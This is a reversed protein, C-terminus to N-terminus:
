YTINYRFFGLINSIKFSSNDINASYREFGAGISFFRKNKYNLDYTNILHVKSLTGITYGISINNKHDNFFSLYSLTLPVGLSTNKRSIITNRERQYSNFNSYSFGINIRFNKHLFYQYESQTSLVGYSESNFVDGSFRRINFSLSGTKLLHNIGIEFSTFIPDKAIVKYSSHDQEMSSFTSDYRFHFISSPNHQPISNSTKPKTKSIMHSRRTIDKPKITFLSVRSEKERGYKNIVIVKWYYKDKPLEKIFYNKSTVISLIPNSLNRKKSLIFRYKEDSKGKEWRFTIKRKKGIYNSNHSPRILKAPSVEYVVKPLKLVLTSTNSFDSVRNWFDITAIRWYYTGEQFDILEFRNILTEAKIVKNSLEPDSYVEIIYKKTDKVETWSITVTTKDNSASVSPILLDFISTFFNKIGKLISNIKLELEIKDKLIPKTPPPTPSIIVKQPEGYFVEKNKLKIKTRWYYTGTKPVSTEITNIRSTISKTINKFNTDNSLEFIYAVKKNQSTRADKWKFEVKKSPRNIVLKTGNKPLMESDYLSFKVKKAGSFNTPRGLKDLVKVRWFYQGSRDIKANFTNKSLREELILNTFSASNSVQLIYEHKSTANWRFTAPSNPFLIVEHDNSPSILVPVKPIIPERVSFSYTKSWNSQSSNLPRVKWKYLGPELKKLLLYKRGNIIIRKDNVLLEFNRFFDDKWRLIINLNKTNKIFSDNQNPAILLSSNQPILSFPHVVSSSNNDKVRWFYNGAELLVEHQNKNVRKSYVIKKFSLDKSVEINVDKKGSWKFIIRKENKSSFIRKNPPPSIPISLSKRVNIGEGMRNEVIHGKSINITKSKEKIKAEGELMSISSSENTTNILVKANNSNINIVKNNINVKFNSNQENLEAIIFGKEIAIENSKKFQSLSILTNESIIVKPGNTIDIEANSNNHTYIKGNSDLTEGEIANGWFLSEGSKTKVTNSKEKIVAISSKKSLTLTFQDAILIYTSVLFCIFTFPILLFDIKKIYM